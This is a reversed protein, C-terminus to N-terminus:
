EYGTFINKVWATVISSWEQMLTFIDMSKGHIARHLPIARWSALDSGAGLTLLEYRYAIQGSTIGERLFQLDKMGYIITWIKTRDASPDFFLTIFEIESLPTVQHRNSKNFEEHELTNDINECRGRCYKDFAPFSLPPSSPETQGLFSPLSICPMSSRQASSLSM